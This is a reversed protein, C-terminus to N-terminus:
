RNTRYPGTKDGFHIEMHCNPCLTPLNDLVNNKKDGDLHHLQLIGQCKNYGCLACRSYMAAKRIQRSSAFPIGKILKQGYEKARKIDYCRRSCFLRIKSQRCMREKGCEPCVVKVRNRRQWDDVCKRSCFSIYKGRYKDWKAPFTRECSPCKHPETHM